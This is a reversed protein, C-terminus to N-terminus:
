EVGGILHAFHCKQTKRTAGNETARISPPGRHKKWPACHRGFSRRLKVRNAPALLPLKRLAAARAPSCVRSEDTWKKREEKRGTKSRFNPSSPGSPSRQLDSANRCPRPAARASSASAFEGGSVAVKNRKMDTDKRWFITYVMQCCLLVPCYIDLSISPPWSSWKKPVQQNTKPQGFCLCSRRKDQPPSPQPASRCSSTLLRWIRDFHRRKIAKLRLNFNKILHM